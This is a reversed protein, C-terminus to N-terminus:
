YKYVPKGVKAVAEIKQLYNNALMIATGKHVKGINDIIHIEGLTLNIMVAEYEGEAIQPPKVSTAYEIKYKPDLSGILEVAVDEFPRGWNSIIVWTDWSKAVQEKKYSVVADFLGKNMADQLYGKGYKKEVKEKEDM